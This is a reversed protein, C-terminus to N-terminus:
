LQALLRRRVIAIFVPAGLVATVEGRPATFTVDTLARVAGYSTSLDRVELM